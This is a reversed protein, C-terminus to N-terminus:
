PSWIHRTREVHFGEGKSEIGRVRWWRRCRKWQYVMNLNTTEVGRFFILWNPHDDWYTSFHFFIWLVLWYQDVVRRAQSERVEANWLPEVEGVELIEMSKGHKICLCFLSTIAIAWDTAGAVLNITRKDSACGNRVESRPAFKQSRFVSFLEDVLLLTIMWRPSRDVIIKVDWCTHVYNYGVSYLMFM